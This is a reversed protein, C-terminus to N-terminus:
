PNLDTAELMQGDPTFAEIRAVKGNVNVV